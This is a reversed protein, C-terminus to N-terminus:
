IKNNLRDKQKLASIIIMVVITIGLLIGLVPWYTKAIDKIIIDYRKSNNFKFDLSFNNKESDLNWYLTNEDNDFEDANNSLIKLQSKVKVDIKTFPEGDFEGNFISDKYYEGTTVLGYEGYEGNPSINEFIVPLIESYSILDNINNFTRSVYITSKNKSSDKTIKYSKYMNNKRYDELTDKFFEDVNNTELINNDFSMEFKEEVKGNSKINIEYKGTCGTLLILLTILIFVKKM